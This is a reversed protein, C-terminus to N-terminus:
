KKIKFIAIVSGKLHKREEDINHTFFVKDVNNGFYSMLLKSDSTQRGAGPIYGLKKIQNIGEDGGYEVGISIIANNKAVRIVEKAVIEPDYSYSIVWGLIVIDFSDNEFPMNHMDGLKIWPSYSIIDLGSINKLLFGNGILNLIEGETRPGVSLIKDNIGVQDICALPKILVSSRVVALDKLGKLNHSITNSSISKNELDFTRLRRMVKVLIFYRVAAILLRLVDILLLQHLTTKFLGKYKHRNHDKM